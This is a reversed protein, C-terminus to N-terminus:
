KARVLVANDFPNFNILDMPFEEGDKIWKKVQAKFTSSNITGVILEGYGNDRCWQYVDDKNEKPVSCSADHRIELRGLNKIVISTIGAEEMTEPIATKALFEHEHWLKAAEAKADTHLERLRGMCHAKDTLSMGEYQPYDNM